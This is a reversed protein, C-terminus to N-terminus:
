QLEEFEVKCRKCRPRIVTLGCLPCILNEDDPAPFAKVMYRANKYHRVRDGVTFYNESLEETDYTLVIPEREEEPIPHDTDPLVTWRCVLTYRLNERTALFTASRVVKKCERDIVTGVWERALSRPIVRSKWFIFAYVVVSLIAIWRQEAKDCFPKAVFYMVVFLVAVVILIVWRRMLRRKLVTRIPRYTSLRDPTDVPQKM